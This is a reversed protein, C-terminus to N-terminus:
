GHNGFIRRLRIDSSAQWVNALEGFALWKCLLSSTPGKDAIDLSFAFATLILFSLGSLVRRLHASGSRLYRGNFILVLFRVLGVVVFVGAWWYQSAYYTLINYLSTQSVIGPELFLQIGLHMMLGAMLWELKRISVHESLDQFIVLNM